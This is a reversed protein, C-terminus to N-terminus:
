IVKESNNSTDPGAELLARSNGVKLFKTLDRDSLSDSILYTLIIDVKSKRPYSTQVVM